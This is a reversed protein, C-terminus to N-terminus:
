KTRTVTLWEHTPELVRFFQPDHLHYLIHRFEQQMDLLLDELQERQTSPDGLVPLQEDLVKRFSEELDSFAHALVGSEDQGYQAVLPCRSLRRRLDEIRHPEQLILEDM